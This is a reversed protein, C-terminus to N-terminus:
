CFRCVDKCCASRMRPLYPMPKSGRKPRPTRGCVSLRIRIPLWNTTIRASFNTVASATIPKRHAGLLYNARAQLTDLRGSFKDSTNFDPQFTYENNPGAAGNTNNRSSDTIGYGIRYSFRTNVDHEFRFLSNVFHSYRGYDSDDLSSIFTAGPGTAIAPIIGSVPANPSPSPSTDLELYGQNAFVNAIVRVNPRLLFEVSGQGSWDRVAGADGVGETVSLNSVGVSYNIRDKAASGAVRAVGRFLGLGGGQVDLDGHLPEGVATDSIINVTGSMANSGYLSSGSGRLVEIRSSNVLLLDGIYASAEDQISTPDRFPFGDILVATDTVRLGRTQISTLAGPGGETTVQLGPTYQLADAVSFLGRQEAEDVNM